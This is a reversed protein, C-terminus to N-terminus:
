LARALARGIKLTEETGLRGRALRDRLTGGEIFPMVLFPHGEATGVELLPVVGEKEDFSSLLRSEREFRALADPHAKTILKVAVTRGDPDTAKLVVGMGGRGLQGAVIFRGIRQM